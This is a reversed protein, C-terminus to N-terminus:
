RPLRFVIPIMVTGGAVSRGEQSLGEMRFLPALKLAAEGFGMGPPTEEPVTCATLRGEATISCRIFARGEQGHAAAGKPYVLALDHGTPKQVWHPRQLVTEPASAAAPAPRFVIPIRVKGGGIPHGDKTMPRMKFRTSLALVAAGFGAGPPDEGEVRCNTLLGEATTVCDLTARGGLGAKLAEPPYVAALDQGTPKEAWDPMTIITPAAGAAAGGLALMGALWLAKRM